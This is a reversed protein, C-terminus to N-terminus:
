DDQNSGLKYYVELNEEPYYIDFEDMNNYHGYFLLDHSYDGNIQEVKAAVEKELKIRFGYKVFTKKLGESRAEELIMGQEVFLRKYDDNM